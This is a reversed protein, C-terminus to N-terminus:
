ISDQPSEPGVKRLMQCADALKARRLAAQVPDPKNPEESAAAEDLLKVADAAALELRRAVGALFRLGGPQAAIAEAASVITELRMARAQWDTRLECLMDPEPIREKQDEESM